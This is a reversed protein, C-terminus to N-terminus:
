TDSGGTVLVGQARLMAAADPTHITILLDWVREVLPMVPEGDPLKGHRALPRLVHDLLWLERANLNFEHTAGALGRAALFRVRLDPGGEGEYREAVPLELALYLCEVDSLTINM